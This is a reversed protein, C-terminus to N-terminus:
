LDNSALFSILADNFADPQDINVAHGAKDIIVKEAGPIKIAMYDTAALFAEDEAGAIVISPVKIDPLLEIVRSNHQTLMNRAAWALGKVNRHVASAQEASRGTLAAAGDKEIEKGRALAFENWAERAAEKKFGPGTDIILLAKVREPFDAYFALSMYGGLSLGGIIATEFGLHDLLAAMDGTTLTESYAADDEPSDSQGHGRMDWTILTHDKALAEIQPTWMQSTASFGHTLLLADGSGHVEFYIDVGDRELVGM